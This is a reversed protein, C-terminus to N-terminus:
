TSFAMAVSQSITTTQFSFTSNIFTRYCMDIEGSQNREIVDMVPEPSVLQKTAELDERYKLEFDGLARSVALQGNVRGQTM